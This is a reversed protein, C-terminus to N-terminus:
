LFANDRPIKVLCSDHESFVFLHAAPLNCCYMQLQIQTYYPHRVNLGEDSLWPVTIEKNECSKPCKVELCLLDGTQDEVIGDPSACLWPQCPKIVLGAKHLVNGTLSSYKEKALPEMDRGYRLNVHDFPKASFYKLITDNKRANAISHAKSASVRCSRAKYWKPSLSQDLTDVFVQFAEENTVQVGNLTGTLNREGTTLPTPVCEENYFLARVSAPISINVEHSSRDVDEQTSSTSATLSKYLAANELGFQALHNALQEQCRKEMKFSPQPTSPFNFIKEAPQGKGYMEQKAKSPAQWLQEKDTCGASRERNIFYFVAAAHKCKGDIGAVCQCRGQIVRRSSKDISLVVKYPKQNVNTQPLVSAVIESCLGLQKEQVALIHGAKALAEGKATNGGRFFEDDVTLAQFGGGILLPIPGPSRFIFVCM